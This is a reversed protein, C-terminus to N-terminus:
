RLGTTIEFVTGDDNSGGGLTTGYFNGNSAQVLGARPFEGDTGDFSHLTTLTGGVTIEFVTGYGNSGGSLTTGYFKGNSGLM